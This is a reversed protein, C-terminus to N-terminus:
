GAIEKLKKTGSDAIIETLKQVPLSSWILGCATCATFGKADVKVDADALTILKLGKPRFYFPPFGSLTNFLKGSVVKSSKCEPCNMKENGKM